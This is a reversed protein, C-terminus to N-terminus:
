PWPAVYYAQPNLECATMAMPVVIVVVEGVTDEDAADLLSLWGAENLHAPFGGHRAGKDRPWEPRRIDRDRKHCRNDPQCLTRVLGHDSQLRADLEELRSCSGLAAFV